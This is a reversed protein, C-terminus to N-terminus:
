EGIVLSKGSFAWSIWTWPTVVNEEEKLGTTFFCGGGGRPEKDDADETELILFSPLRLNGM